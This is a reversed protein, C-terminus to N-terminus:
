RMVSLDLCTLSTCLRRTRYIVDNVNYDNVSEVSSQKCNTVVLQTVMAIRLRM